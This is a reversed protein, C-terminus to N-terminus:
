NAATDFSDHFRRYTMQLADPNIAKAPIASIEEKEEIEEARLHGSAKCYVCFGKM